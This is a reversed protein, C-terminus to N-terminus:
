YSAQLSRKVQLDQAKEQQDFIHDFFDFDSGEVNPQINTGVKLSSDKPVISNEQENIIQDFIDM